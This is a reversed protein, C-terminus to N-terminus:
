RRNLELMAALEEIVGSVERESNVRWRDADSYIKRRVIPFKEM